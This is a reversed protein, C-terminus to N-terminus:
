ILESDLGYVEGKMSAFDEWDLEKWVLECDREYYSDRVTKIAEVVTGRPYTAHLFLGEGYLLGVHRATGARRIGDPTDYDNKAVLFGAKIKAPEYTGDTDKTFVKKKLDTATVRIPNGMFTFIGCILGSCDTGGPAESGWVYPADLYLYALLRVKEVRNANEYKERWLSMARIINVM